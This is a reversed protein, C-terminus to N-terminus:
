KNQLVYVYAPPVNKNAKLIDKVKFYKTFLKEKFKTYQFTIFLGNGIINQTNKLIKNSIKKPLSAFPLGSVIYDIEKINYQKLINEINQVDDNIIHINNEEKIIKKLTNYFEKNLEIMIYITNKNKRKIIEKSFSGTGPGYEIIVNANNFNIPEIMKKALEKGSAAVAGVTRPHMIYQKLFNTM